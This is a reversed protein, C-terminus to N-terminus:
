YKLFLNHLRWFIIADLHILSDEVIKKLQLRMSYIFDSSELVLAHHPINWLKFYTPKTSHTFLLSQGCPSIFLFHLTCSLFEALYWLCQEILTFIQKHFCHEAPLEETGTCHKHTCCELSHCLSSRQPLFLFLVLTHSKKGGTSENNKVLHNLARKESKTSPGALM